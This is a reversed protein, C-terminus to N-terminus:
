GKRRGGGGAAGAAGDAHDEARPTPRHEPHDTAQAIFRSVDRALRRNLRAHSERAAAIRALLLPLVARQQDPSLLVAARRADLRADRFRLAFCNLRGRVYHATGAKDLLPQCRFLREEPSTGTVRAMEAVVVASAMDCCEIAADLSAGLDGSVDVKMTAASERRSLEGRAVNLYLSRLHEWADPESTPVLLREGEGERDGEGEGEGEARLREHARRERPLVVVRVLSVGDEEEDEEVDDGVAEEEGAREGEGEEEEEDEPEDEARKGGFDGPRVIRGRADDWRGAARCLSACRATDTADFFVDCTGADEDTCSVTALRWTRVGAPARSGPTQRADRVLVRAGPSVGEASLVPPTESLLAELAARFLAVARQTDGTRWVRAGAEKLVLSREWGSGYRAACAMGEADWGKLRELRGWAVDLLAVSGIQLVASESDDDSALITATQVAPALGHARCEDESLHVRVVDGELPSDLSM